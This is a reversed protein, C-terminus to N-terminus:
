GHKNVMYYIKRGIAFPFIFWWYFVMALMADPDNDDIDLLKATIAIGFCYVVFSAVSILVIWLWNM